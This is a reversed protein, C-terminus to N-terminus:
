FNSDLIKLINLEDSHIMKIFGKYELEIFKSDSAVPIEEGADIFGSIHLELAVQANRTAEELSYGVATCGPLDPFIVNYGKQNDKEIFVAPFMLKDM